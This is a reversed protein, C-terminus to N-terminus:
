RAITYLERSNRLTLADGAALALVTSTYTTVTPALKDGEDTGARLSLYERMRSNNRWACSRRTLDQSSAEQM